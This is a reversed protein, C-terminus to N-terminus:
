LFGLRNTTRLINGAEKIFNNQKYTNDKEFLTLDGIGELGIMVYTSADSYFANAFDFDPGSFPYFVLRNKGGVTDLHEEKMWESVPNLMKQKKKNWAKNLKNAYKKFDSPIKNSDLCALYSACENLNDNSKFDVHNEESDNEENLIVQKVSDSSSSSVSDINKISPNNNAKNESQKQSCSSIVITVFFLIATISSKRKSVM